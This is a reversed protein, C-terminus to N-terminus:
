GSRREDSRVPEDLFRDVLDPTPVWCTEPRGFWRYRHRAVVDYGLDRIPRPVIWLLMSALRWPWGLHLGIRVVAASRVHVRPGDVLAISDVGALDAGIARLRDAAAESGLRAFRFRAEPDRAIVFQVSGSCLNCVGDFLVLPHSRSDTSVPPDGLTVPHARTPAAVESLAALDSWSREALSFEDLMRVLVEGTARADAAAGHAGTLEGGVFRRFAGTLSRPESRRWIRYPDILAIGSLDLPELGHRRLAGDLMGLDFSLNYGVLATAGTIRSRIEGAAEPLRPCGAVDEDTIGHIASADEAIPVLPRLRQVWVPASRGLGEQIAVEIIDDRERDLGTTEVDLIVIRTAPDTM